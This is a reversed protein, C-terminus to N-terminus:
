GNKEAEFRFIKKLETYLEDSIDALQGKLEKLPGAIFYLEYIKGLKELFPGKKWVGKIDTEVKSTVNAIIIGKTQKTKKGKVAVDVEKAGAVQFKVDTKHKVYPTVKREGTWEIEIEEGKHKYSKQAFDFKHRKYWKEVAKYAAELDFIGRLKIVQDFVTKEAM